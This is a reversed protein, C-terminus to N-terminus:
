DGGGAVGRRRSVARVVQSAPLTCVLARPSGPARTQMTLVQASLQLGGTPLRGGDTTVQRREKGGRAQRADQGAALREGHLALPHRLVQARACPYLLTSALQQLQSTPRRVSFPRSCPRACSSCPWLPAQPRGLARYGGGPRAQPPSCVHRADPSFSGPWSALLWFASMPQCSFDLLAELHQAHLAVNRPGQRPELRAAPSQAAAWCGAAAALVGGAWTAAGAVGAPRALAARRGLCAFDHNQRTHSLERQSAWGCVRRQRM